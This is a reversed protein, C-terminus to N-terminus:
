IYKKTYRMLFRAKNTFPNWYNDTNRPDTTYFIDWMGNQITHVQCQEKCSKILTTPNRDKQIGSFKTEEYKTWKDDTDRKEKISQGCFQGNHVTGRWKKYTEHLRGELVAWNNEKSYWM